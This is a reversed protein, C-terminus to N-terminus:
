ILFLQDPFVEFVELFEHLKPFFCVPCNKIFFLSDFAYRKLVSMKFYRDQGKFSINFGVQQANNKFIYCM